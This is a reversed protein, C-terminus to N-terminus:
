KKAAGPPPVHVYGRMAAFVWKGKEKMFVATGKHKVPPMAKGDPGKMGGLEVDADGVAVDPKIFNIKTPSIAHTTGKMPGALGASMKEILEARGNMAEGMPNVLTVGETFLGAASKLDGKGWAADFAACTARIAAEDKADNGKAFATSTLTCLALAITFTKM